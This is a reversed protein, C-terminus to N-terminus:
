YAEGHTLHPSVKVQQLSEGWWDASRIAKMALKRQDPDLRDVMRHLDVHEPSM